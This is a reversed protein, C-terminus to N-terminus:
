WVVRCQVSICCQSTFPFIAFLYLIWTAVRFLTRDATSKTGAHAVEVKVRQRQQQQLVIQISYLSISDIFKCHLFKCANLINENRREARLTRGNKTETQDPEASEIQLSLLKWWKQGASGSQQRTAYVCCFPFVVSRWGGENHATAAGNPANELLRFCQFWM